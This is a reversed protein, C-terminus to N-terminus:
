IFIGGRRRFIPHNRLSLSLGGTVRGLISVSYPLQIKLIASGTSEGQSTWWVHVMELLWHGQSLVALSKM